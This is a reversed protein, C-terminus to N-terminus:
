NNNVTINEKLKKMGYKLAALFPKFVTDQGSKMWPVELTKHFEEDGLKPLSYTRLHEEDGSAITILISRDKDTVNMKTRLEEQEEKTQIYKLGPVKDFENMDIAFGIMAHAVFVVPFDSIIPNMKKEFLQLAGDLGHEILVKTPVTVAILEIGMRKWLGVMFMPLSHAPHFAAVKTTAETMILTEQLITNIKEETTPM